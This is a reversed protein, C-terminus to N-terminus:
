EQEDAGLRVGIPKGAGANLQVGLAEHQGAGVGATKAMRQLGAPAADEGDAIDACRRDLPDGGRDALASLDDRRQM